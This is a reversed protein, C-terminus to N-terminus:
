YGSCVYTITDGTAVAGVIAATVSTTTYSTTKIVVGPATDDSWMCVPRNGYALANAFTMAFSTFNSVNSVVISGSVNTSGPQTTTTGGTGITAPVGAVGILAQHPGIFSGAHIGSYGSGDGLQIELVNSNINIRPFAATCAAFCLYNFGTNANNTFLLQGDAPSGMRIRSSWGIQAGSAATIAGQAYLASGTGAVDGAAGLTLNGHPNITAVNTGAGNYIAVGGTGATSNLKLQTAATSHLESATVVGSVAGVGSDTLAATGNAVPLNGSVLSTSTTNGGGGGAGCAAGTTTLLGGTGAQVCQGVTLGSDTVSPVTLAGTSSINGLLSGSSSYLNLLNATDSATQKLSLVPNTSSAPPEITVTAGGPFDGSGGISTKTANYQIWNTLSPMNMQWINTNDSVSQIAFGTTGNDLSLAGFFGNQGRALIQTDATQGAYGLMSLNNGKMLAWEIANNDWRHFGIGVTPDSNLEFDNINNTDRNVQVFIPRTAGNATPQYQWYMENYNAGSVLYKDEVGWFWAPETSVCQTGNSCVNYGMGMQTDVTTTTGSTYPHENFLLTFPAGGGPTNATSLAYNTNLPLVSSSTGSGAPPTACPQTPGAATGIAFQGTPCNGIGANNPNATAANQATFGLTAQAGSIQSFPITPLNTLPVQSTANLPAYGSAAGKNAANEPTFGLAAQKAAFATRDATSLLAPTTQTTGSVPLATVAATAAGSADFATSPQTAATGLGLNTRATAASALDALNNTAVLAGVGGGSVTALEFQNTTANWIYTQSATPTGAKFTNGQIATANLAPASVTQNLQAMSTAGAAPVKWHFTSSKAGNMILVTYVYGATDSAFLTVNLTGNTIPSTLQSGPVWTGNTSLFPQWTFYAMGIPVTAGSADVAPITLPVSQAALWSSIAFLLLCLRTKM